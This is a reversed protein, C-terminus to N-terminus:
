WLKFCFYQFICFLLNLQERESKLDVEIMGDWKQKKSNIEIFLDYTYKKNLKYHYNKLLFKIKNILKM